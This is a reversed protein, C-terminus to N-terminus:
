VRVYVCMVQCTLQSLLDPKHMCDLPEWPLGIEHSSPSFVSLVHLVYGCDVMETPLHTPPYGNIGGPLRMRDISSVFILVVFIDKLASRPSETFIQM